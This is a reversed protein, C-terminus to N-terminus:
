EFKLLGFGAGIMWDFSDLRLFSSVNTLLDSLKVFSLDVGFFGLISTM